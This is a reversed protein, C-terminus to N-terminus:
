LIVKLGRMGLETAAQADIGDGDNLFHGILTANKCVAICWHDRSQRLVVAAAPAMGGRVHREYSASGPTHAIVTGPPLTEAIRVRVSSGPPSAFLWPTHMNPTSM